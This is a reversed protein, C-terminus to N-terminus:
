STPIRGSAQQSQPKSDRRPAHVNTTLTLYLDRRHASWGELPTRGGTTRRRTYDLFRTRQMWAPWWSYYHGPLKQSTSRASKRSTFANRIRPNKKTPQPPPSPPDSSLGCHNFSSGASYTFSYPIAYDTSRSAIASPSSPGPISDHQVRTIGRGGLGAWPGRGNEQVTPIPGSGM